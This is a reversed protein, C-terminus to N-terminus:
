AELQKQYNNKMNRAIYNMISAIDDADNNERDAPRVLASYLEKVIMETMQPVLEASLPFDKDLIDVCDENNNSDCSLEDAKDPDEFTGSLRLKNMYQYQPNTSKLYLHDDQGLTAYIISQMYKNYGVFKFRDKTVLAINVNSFYDYPYVRASEKEMMSPVAQISKLYYGAECGMNPIAETYELDLCIEQTYSDDLKFLKDQKKKLEILYVRYIKMLYLVHEETIYSDTNVSKIEDLIDYVIERRTM